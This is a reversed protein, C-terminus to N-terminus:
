QKKYDIYKRIASYSYITYIQNIRYAFRWVSYQILINQIWNSQAESYGFLHGQEEEIVQWQKRVFM